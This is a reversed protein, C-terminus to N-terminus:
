PRVLDKCSAMDHTAVEMALMAAQKESKPKIVSDLTTAWNVKSTAM